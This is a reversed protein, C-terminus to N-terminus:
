GFLGSLSSVLSSIMEIAVVAFVILLVVALLVGAASSSPRGLNPMSMAPLGRRRVQREALEEEIDDDAVEAVQRPKPRPVKKLLSPARTPWTRQRPLLGLPVLDPREVDPMGSNAAKAKEAAEEELAADVMRKVADPDHEVPRATPLPGFEGARATGATGGTVLGSLPDSFREGGVDGGLTGDRETEPAPAPFFPAGDSTSM